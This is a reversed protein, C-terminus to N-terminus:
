TILYLIIIVPTILKFIILFNQKPKKVTMSKNVQDGIEASLLRKAVFETDFIELENTISCKAAFSLFDTVTYM